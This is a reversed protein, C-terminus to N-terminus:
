KRDRMAGFIFMSIVFVLVFIVWGYACAMGFNGANLNVMLLNTVGEAFQKAPGGDTTTLVAAETYMRLSSIADMIFAFKFTQKMLPLTIRCIIQFESAGDIRAAETLDDSIATMGSMYVVMFWGIGRWILMLLVIWKATYQNEVWSVTTGFIQNIAGTERAFLIEFVIAVATTACVQPIFLVPKFFKTAASRRMTNTRLCWALMFSIITIPIFKVIWYFMTRGLADWFRGYTLINKYNAIGVWKVTGYGAYKAFSLILAYVSPVAFFLIFSIMFPLLFIYPAYKETRNLTKM